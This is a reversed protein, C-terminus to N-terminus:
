RGKNIINRMMMQQKTCRIQHEANLLIQKDFDNFDKKNHTINIGKEQLFKQVYEDNNLKEEFTESDYPKQYFRSTYVTVDENAYLPKNYKVFSMARKIGYIHAQDIDNTELENGKMMYIQNQDSVLVTGVMLKGCYNQVDTYIKM